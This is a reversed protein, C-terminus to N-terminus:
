EVVKGALKDLKCIVGDVPAANNGAGYLSLDVEELIRYAVPENCWFHFDKEYQLLPTGLILEPKGEKLCRNKCYEM